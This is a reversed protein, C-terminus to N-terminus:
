ARSMKAELSVRAALLSPALNVAASLWATKWFGFVPILYSSLLLAGVCGGLLDIAYLTGLRSRGSRANDNDHDHDYLYIETAIPFQYGGLMGCLAALAPFVFQAALWTTATGSIKSLLSVVFILAPGSLALLLQTTAITRYPPSESSRVRRIGLWSGFAIGAM